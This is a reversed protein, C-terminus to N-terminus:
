VAEEEFIFHLEPPVEGETLAPMIKVLFDLGGMVGVMKDPYIALIMEQTGRPFGAEWIGKYTNTNNVRILEYNPNGMPVEVTAHITSFDESFRWSCSGKPKFFPTLEHQMEGEILYPENWVLDYKIKGDSTKGIVQHSEWKVEDAYLGQRPALSSFTLASTLAVSALIMVRRWAEMEGGKLV